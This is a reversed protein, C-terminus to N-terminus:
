EDILEEWSTDFHELLGDLDDCRDQYAEKIQKNERELEQAKKFQEKAYRYIWDLEGDAYLNKLTDIFRHYDEMDASDDLFDIYDGFGELREKSM